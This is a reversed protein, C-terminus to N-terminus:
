LMHKRPSILFIDVNKQYFFVFFAKDTAISLINFLTSIKETVGCFYVNQISM